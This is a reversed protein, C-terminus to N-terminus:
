YVEFHANRPKNGCIFTIDQPCASLGVVLDMEARLVIYDGKKTVPPNPKITGHQRSPFM